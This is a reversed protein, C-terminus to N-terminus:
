LGADCRASLSSNPPMVANCPSISRIRLAMLMLLLGM